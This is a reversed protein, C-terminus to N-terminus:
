LQNLDVRIWSITNDVFLKITLNTFYKGFWYIHIGDYYTVFTGPTKAM